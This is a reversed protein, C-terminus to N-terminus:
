TWDPASILHQVRYANTLDVVPSYTTTTAAAYALSTLHKIKQEALTFLCVNTRECPICVNSYVVHHVARMCWLNQIKMGKKIRDTRM